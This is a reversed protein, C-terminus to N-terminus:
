VGFQKLHHDLHKYMSKGWQDPTFTGFFPHPFKGIWQPGSSYFKAILETLRLKEMYFDRENTIKFNPSTPLSKSWASDNYLKKKFIWGFLIGPLARPQKVDSLPIKFIEKCHAFMQAANMKGWLPKTEPTIKNLRHVIDFYTNSDFLSLM